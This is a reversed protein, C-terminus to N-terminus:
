EREKRRTRERERTCESASEDGAERLVISRKIVPNVSACTARSLTCTPTFPVRQPENYTELNPNRRFQARRIPERWRAEERDVHVNTMIILRQISIEPDHESNFRTSACRHQGCFLTRRSLLTCLCHAVRDNLTTGAYCSM